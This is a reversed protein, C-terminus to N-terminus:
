FELGFDSLSGMNPGLNLHKQKKSFSQFKVFKLTRIKFIVITKLFKQRSIVLYRMKPWFNLCNKYIKPIQSIDPHQNWIRCYRKFIRDLILWFLWKQDHKNKECFKAIQCIQPHQNWIHSCSKLIRHWFYKFLANKTGFKPIKIKECFRAIQYIQPLQNLIHSCSKLNRDWFYEFLANKTRLKPIQIKKCFKAIQYIQQHQNRIHCHKKLLGVLFYM